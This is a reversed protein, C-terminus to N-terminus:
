WFWRFPAQLLALRAAADGAVGHVAGGPFTSASALYLGKVPTRYPSLAAVPRFILQHLAYSGGGVDGGILNPNRREFEPPTIIHRALIHQRFGPAFTEIRAEIHEAYREAHRAQADEWAIGVPPHTYAWATHQGAPARTPDALSQQGVLLFPQAPLQGARQQAQAQQLAAGDGGVHVTGAQRAEAALWPVPAALAWDVKLTQDGSRYRRLRAAYAAPLAAGALRLLGRPTVSALVLGGRITEGGALVVGAAQGREVLIQEVLAGTRVQGGLARLHAVLAAALRGAGGEPSPWGVAHGLIKLYLATIASGPADLAVDGHLASGYLWAAAGQSTFLESALETAPLLLLRALELVGAPQLTTLLRAGGEVPPFGGLLASRLADFHRLYPAVFHQWHQGDGPALRDLSAVTAQVDRSLAAARGEPLVHALAIPPDIWRLGYRALPLRAFVPSAAGAPHVASYTDHLFGPLTLEETALAGGPTTRQELVLVSRGQEALTIAAALGNPGSGIVLADFRTLPAM